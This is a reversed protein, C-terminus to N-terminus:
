AYLNCKAKVKMQTEKCVVCLSIVNIDCIKSINSMRHNYTYGGNTLKYLNTVSPSPQIYM